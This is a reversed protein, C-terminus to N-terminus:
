TLRFFQVFEKCKTALSLSNSCAFGAFAYIAHECKHAELQRFNGNVEFGRLFCQNKFFLGGTAIEQQQTNKECM